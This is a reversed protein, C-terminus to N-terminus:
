KKKTSKPKTTTTTAPPLTTEPVPALTIDVPRGVPLLEVWTRGPRLLIPVGFGDVYQAPKAKDPRVWRGMRVTGDTFIWADGEGVTQGEAAGTYPTFQVVVNAPAVQAGGTVTFPQGDMFRLWTKSAADWNWTVDFGADFHVAMGLVATGAAPLYPPLYGFLPQPPVPAGGLAFLREPHAYLNHPAYRSPQGSANREFADGATGESIVKVPAASIAEVNIAAGGSFAFIGGLPWVIDPDEARVSRVPGVTEPVASNFITLFRTIGGEVEEEYVVDAQDIGVQPRAPPANDVKISVAPRTLSLGSPDDLGTLPAVPIKVTTTTSTSTTTSKPKKKKESGGGGCAALVVALVLLGAVATGWRRTQRRTERKNHRKL